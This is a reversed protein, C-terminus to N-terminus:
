EELGGTIPFIVKVRTGVGGELEVRGGLQHKVLTQVLEMGLTPSTAANFGAPLGIGDDSVALELQDGGATQIRVDIRGHRGDPFAHKLANTILENIILGCPIALDLPLGIDEVMLRTEVRAPSLNYSHMLHTVLEEVYSQLRISALDASQYLKNYVLAMSRIREESEKFMLRDQEDKVYTAQMKLLSSIVQMNNKVRHHIEKLLVEKEALSERLAAEAKLRDVTKWVSDMLLTLQHTDATTYDAEKNAVGAVAVIKGGVIIPVSLFRHLRAHGAPYGKKLPNPASFNNVLIAQRQRVVDGWIGTKELQYVTQPESITCEKMVERSWTNLVFEQRDEHYHYIYGIKSGTLEIAEGLAFDLMDQVDRAPYESIRRLSELRAENLRIIERNEKLGIIDTLSVIVGLSLNNKDFASIHALVPLVEGNKRKLNLEASADEGSPIKSYLMRGAQYDEESYYVMRTPRGVLEEKCYDLMRMLAQNVDTFVRDVVVAFGISTTNFIAKLEMESKRVQANLQEADDLLRKNVMSVLSFVFLVVTASLMIFVTTDFAGSHFFDNDIEGTLIVGTWRVVLIALILAGAIGTDALIRRFGPNKERWIIWMIPLLTIILGSITNLNRIFLDNQVFNFYAHVAIFCVLYAIAPLALWSPTKKGLFRRIGVFLLLNGILLVSNAVVVSAWDPINGRLAILLAGCLQLFWDAVWYELGVYRRHNNKWLLVVILLLFASLIANAFTVTAMSPAFM